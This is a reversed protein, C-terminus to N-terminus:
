IKERKFHGQMMKGKLMNEGGRNVYAYVLSSKNEDKKKQQQELVVKAEDKRGTKKVKANWGFRQNQGNNVLIGLIPWLKM